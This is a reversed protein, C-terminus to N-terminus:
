TPKPNTLSQSISSAEDGHLIKQLDRLPDECRISEEVSDLWSSVTTDVEDSLAHHNAWVRLETLFALLKQSKNWQDALREFGEWRALMATEKLELEKKAQGEARRKARIEARENERRAAAKRAAAVCAVLRKLGYQEVEKRSCVFELSRVCNGSVSLKMNKTPYLWYGHHEPWATWNDPDIGHRLEESMKQRIGVKLEASGIQIRFRGDVRAQVVQAGIKDISKFFASTVRLRYYDFDSLSLSSLCDACASNSCNLDCIWSAVIPHADSLCSDISPQDIKRFAEARERKTQKKQNDFPNAVPFVVVEVMQSQALQLNPREVSKGTDVKTWHGRPPTPIRYRKCCNALGRDSVGFQRALKYMPHRWVLEYLEYVSLIRQEEVDIGNALRETKLTTESM